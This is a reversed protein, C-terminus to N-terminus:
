GGYGDADSGGLRPLLGRRRLEEEGDDTISVPTDSRLDGEWCVWGACGLRRIRPLVLGEVKIKQPIITEDACYIAKLVVRIDDEVPEAM